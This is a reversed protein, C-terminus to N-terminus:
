KSTVEAETPTVRLEGAGPEPSYGPKAPPREFIMGLHESLSDCVLYVDRAVPNDDNVGVYRGNLSVEARWSGEWKYTYNNREPQIKLLIEDLAPNADLIKRLAGGLDAAVAESLASQYRAEIEKLARRHPELESRMARLVRERHSSVRASVRDPFVRSM